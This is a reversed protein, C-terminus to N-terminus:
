HLKIKVNESRTAIIEADLSATLQMLEEVVRVAMRQSPWIKGSSFSAGDLHTNSAPTPPLRHIPHSQIRQFSWM